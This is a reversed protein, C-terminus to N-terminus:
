NNCLCKHYRRPHKHHYNTHLSMSLRSALKRSVYWGIRNQKNPSLILVEPHLPDPEDLEVNPSLVQHEQAVTLVVVYMM